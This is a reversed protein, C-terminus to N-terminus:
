PTSIECPRLGASLSAIKSYAAPTLDILRNSACTAGCCSKEGCFLDTQPGCDAIATVVSTGSCLATIRHQFGCTRRSLNFGCTDPHTIAWCADSTNPWAHQLSGSNCTGCAGKGTTSCPGWATGCCFWSVEGQVSALLDIPPPDTPQRRVM